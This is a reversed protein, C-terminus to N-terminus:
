QLVEATGLLARVGAECAEILEATDRYFESDLGSLDVIQPLMEKTATIFDTLILAAKKDTM